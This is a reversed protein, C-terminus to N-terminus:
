RANSAMESLEDALEDAEDPTLSPPKSDTRIKIEGGTEYATVRNVKTPEHDTVSIAAVYEDPELEWVFESPYMRLPDEICGGHGDHFRLTGDDNDIALPEFKVVSLPGRINYESGRSITNYHPPLEEDYTKPEGRFAVFIVPDDGPGREMDAEFAMDRLRRRTNIMDAAPLRADELRDIEIPGIM